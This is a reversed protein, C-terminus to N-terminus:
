APAIVTVSGSSGRFKLSGSEVYLVGGGTPNTTPVTTANAIGIVKVGGGFQTTVNIGISGDNTIRMREAANTYFLFNSNLQNFILFDNSGGGSKGIFAIRGTNTSGLDSGWMTIACGGSAADTSVGTEQIVMQGKYAVGVNKLHFAAAATTGGIVLEGSSQIRMRELANTYFIFNSNLQNYLAFDNSGGGIKGFLGIRGTNTAGIDSGWLTIACGNGTTAAATADTAIVALQSKYPAGGSYTELTTYAPQAGIGLRGNTSDYYFDQTTGNARYLGFANTSNAPPFIKSTKVGNTLTQASSTAGTVSGDAALLGTAAVNASAVLGRGYSTFDALAAAGSGTWYTLKDAATTLGAIAALNANQAQVNTGPVLALATQAAARDVTANLTAGFAAIGHVGSTTGAHTALANSAATAVSAAAGAADFASPANGQLTTANLGSADDDVTLLKALVDNATYSTALLYQTHPNAQGVHTAVAGAAEFSTYVYATLGHNYTLAKGDDGAVPAPVDSFYHEKLTAPIYPPFQLAITM